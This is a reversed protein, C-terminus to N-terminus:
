PSSSIPSSSSPPSTSSSAALHTTREPTEPPPPLQPTIAPNHPRPRWQRVTTTPGSRPIYSRKRNIANVKTTPSPHSDARSLERDDAESRERERSGRESAVLTGLCCFSQKLCTRFSFYQPHPNCLRRRPPSVLPSRALSVFRRRYRFSLTHAAYPHSICLSHTPTITPVHPSTLRNTPIVLLALALQGLTPQVMYSALLKSRGLM